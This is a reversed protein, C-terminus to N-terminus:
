KVKNQLRRFGKFSYLVISTLCKTKRTHTGYTQLTHCVEVIDVHDIITLVAPLRLYFIYGSLFFFFFFFFRM